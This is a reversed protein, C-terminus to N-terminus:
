EDSEVDVVNGLLSHLSSVYQRAEAEREARPGARVADLRELIPSDRDGLAIFVIGPFRRGLAKLLGNAAGFNLTDCRVLAFVLGNLQDLRGRVQTPKASRGLNLLLRLTESYREFLEAFADEGFVDPPRATRTEPAACTAREVVHQGLRLAATFVVCVREEEPIEAVDRLKRAHDVDVWLPMAMRIAGGRPGDEDILHALQVIAREVDPLPAGLFLTPLARAKDPIRDWDSRTLGLKEAVRWLREDPVRRIHHAFDDIWRGEPTDDHLPGLEKIREVIARVLGPIARHNDRQAPSRLPTLDLIGTAALPSAALKSQSASRLVVPLVTVGAVSRRYMLTAVERLVYPAHLADLDILVIGIHCRGMAYDIPQEFADGARLRERDVWVEFGEREVAAVLKTILEAIFRKRHRHNSPSDGPM